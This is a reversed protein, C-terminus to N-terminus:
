FPHAFKGVDNEHVVLGVEEAVERRVCQEITEGSEPLSILFINGYWSVWSCLFVTEKGM